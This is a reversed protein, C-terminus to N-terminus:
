KFKYFSHACDNFLKLLFFYFLYFKFGQYSFIHVYICIKYFSQYVLFYIIYQSKTFFLELFNWQKTFVLNDDTPIQCVPPCKSNCLLKAVVLYALCLRNDELLHSLYKSFTKIILIFDSYFCIKQAIVYYTKKNIRSYWVM